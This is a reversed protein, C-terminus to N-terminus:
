MERGIFFFVTVHRHLVLHGDAKGQVYCIYFVVMKMLVTNAVQGCLHLLHYDLTIICIFGTCVPCMSQESFKPVCGDLVQM